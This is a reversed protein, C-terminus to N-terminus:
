RRWTRHRSRVVERQSQAALVQMLVRHDPDALNVPGGVEPLWAAVGHVALLAAVEHFQRDTFAREFEGVVVADFGCGVGQVRELLAAARPRRAWPVRRSCGVDFYESAIVGHGVIVSEAMERQWARSTVPDQFEATSTRGYFAFRLGAIAM